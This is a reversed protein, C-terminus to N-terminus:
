RGPAQLVSCVCAPLMSGMAEPLIRPRHKQIGKHVESCIRSGRRCRMSWMAGSYDGEAAAQSSHHLVSGAPHLSPMPWCIPIAPALHHTSGPDTLQVSGKIM